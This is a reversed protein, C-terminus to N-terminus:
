KVRFTQMSMSIAFLLHTHDPFVVLVCQVTLFLWLVNVTVLCLVILAFCGAGKEQELHNCFQFACLTICVLIFVLM